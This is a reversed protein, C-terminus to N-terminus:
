QGGSKPPRDDRSAENQTSTNGRAIRNQMLTRLTGDYIPMVYFPLADKGSLLVGSDVVRVINPHQDQLCFWLENKFRRRKVSQSANLCKLAFPQGDADRVRFVTGAGGQGLVGDETYSNTATEFIKGAMLNLLCESLINGGEPCKETFHDLNV